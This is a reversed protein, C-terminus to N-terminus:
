PRPWPATQPAPAAPPPAAPAAGPGADAALRLAAPSAGHRGAAVAVLGLTALSLGSPASVVGPGSGAADDLITVLAELTGQFGVGGARVNSIVLTFAEDAEALSDGM